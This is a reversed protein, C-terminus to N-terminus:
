FAQHATTGNCDKEEKKEKRSKGFVSKIRPEFSTQHKKYLTYDNEHGSGRDWLSHTLKLVLVTVTQRSAPDVQAESCSLFCPPLSDGLLAETKSWVTQPSSNSRSGTEQQRPTSFCGVEPCHFTLSRAQCRLMFGLVRQLNQGCHQTVPLAQWM